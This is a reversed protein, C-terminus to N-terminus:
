EDREDNNEQQQILVRYEDKMANITSNYTDQIEFTMANSASDRNNYEHYTKLWVAYKFEWNNDFFDEIKDGVQGIIDRRGNLILGILISDELNGDIKCFNKVDNLDSDDVETLLKKISM